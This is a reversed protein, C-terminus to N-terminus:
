EGSFRRARQTKKEAAETNFFVKYVGPKKPHRGFSKRQRYGEFLETTETNFFRCKACGRSKRIGASAKRGVTDKLFSRPRQTKM